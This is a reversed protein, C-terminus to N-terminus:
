EEHVCVNHHFIAFRSNQSRAWVIADAKSKFSPPVDFASANETQFSVFWM